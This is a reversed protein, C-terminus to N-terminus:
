YFYVRLCTFLYVCRFALVTCVPVLARKRDSSSRLSALMPASFFAVALTKYPLPVYYVCVGDEEFLRTFWLVRIEM